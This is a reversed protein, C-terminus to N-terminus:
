QPLSSSHSSQTRGICSRTYPRTMVDGNSDHLVQRAPSLCVGTPLVIFKHRWPCSIEVHGQGNCHVCRFNPCEEIYHGQEGCNTCYTAMIQDIPFTPPGTLEMPNRPITWPSLPTIREPQPSLSYSPPLYHLTSFSIPYPTPISHIISIFHIMTTHITM